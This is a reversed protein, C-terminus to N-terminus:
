GKCGMISWSSSKNKFLDNWFKQEVPLAAGGNTAAYRDTEIIFQYSGNNQTAYDVDTSFYRNHAMIPWRGTAEYLESMAIDGGEGNGGPFVTPM